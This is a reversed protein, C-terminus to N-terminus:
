NQSGKQFCKYSRSNKKTLNRPHKPFLYFALTKEDIWYDHEVIQPNSVSKKQGKTDLSHVCKTIESVTAKNVSKKIKWVLNKNSSESVTIKPSRFINSLVNNKSIRPKFIIDDSKAIFVSSVNQTPPSTNWITKVNVNVHTQPFKSSFVEKPESHVSPESPRKLIKTPVFSNQNHTFVRPNRLSSPKSNALFRSDKRTKVEKKYANRAKVKPDVVDNRNLMPKRKPHPSSGSSQGKSPNSFKPTIPVLKTKSLVISDSECSNSSM